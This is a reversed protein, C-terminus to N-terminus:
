YLLSEHYLQLLLSVHIHLLPELRKRLCKIACNLMESNQFKFVFFIQYMKNDSYMIQSQVMCICLMTYHKIKLITEIKVLGADSLTLIVISSNVSISTVENYVTVPWSNM